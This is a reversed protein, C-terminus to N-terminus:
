EYWAVQVETVTFTGTDTKAFLYLDDHAAAHFIDVKFTASVTADGVADELTSQSAPLLLDTGTSNEYGKLIISTAGSITGKLRILQINGSYVRKFKFTNGGGDDVENLKIRITKDTGYSSDFVVNVANTIRHVFKGTKGM